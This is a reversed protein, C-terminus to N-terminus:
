VHNQKNDDGGRGQESPSVAASLDEAPISQRSVNENVIDCLFRETLFSYLKHAEDILMNARNNQLLYFHQQEEVHLPQYMDHSCAPRPDYITTAMSPSPYFNDNPNTVLSMYKDPNNRISEAISLVALSLLAKKESM